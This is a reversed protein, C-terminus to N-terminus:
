DNKLLEMFKYKKKKKNLNNENYEIINETDSELIILGKNYKLIKNDYLDISRYSNKINKDSIYYTLIFVVFTIITVVYFFYKLEKKM